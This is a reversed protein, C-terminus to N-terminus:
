LKRSVLRFSLCFNKVGIDLVVNVVYCSFYKLKSKLVMVVVDYFEVYCKERM